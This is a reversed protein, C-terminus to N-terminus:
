APTGGSSNVGINAHARTAPQDACMRSCFRSPWRMRGVAAYTPGPGRERLQARAM